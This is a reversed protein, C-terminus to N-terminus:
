NDGGYFGGNKTLETRDTCLLYATEQEKSLRDHYPMGLNKDALDKRSIRKSQNVVKFMASYNVRDKLEM